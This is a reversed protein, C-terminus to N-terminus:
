ADSRYRRLAALDPEVGLGPAEPLTLWGDYMPPLAFVAERLLRARHEAGVTPFNCFVEGWGWAGDDARIRVFVAPRNTMSGVAATVPREIPARFVWCEIKEVTM